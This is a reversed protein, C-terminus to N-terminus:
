IYHQSKKIKGECHKNLLEDSAVDTYNIRSGISFISDIEDDKKLMLYLNEMPSSEESTINGFVTDDFAVGRQIGEKKQKIEM